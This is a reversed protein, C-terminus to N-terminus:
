RAAAALEPQVPAPVAAFELGLRYARELYEQRVQPGVAGPAFFYVHEVQQVGPYKLGWDDVIRGIAEQFGEQYDAERFFTTSIVLAKRLRLLPIRGKADGSWGGPTLAYAFGYSFVRDIWGKLIAPFGTWYIPAIIALGDARALKGQQALVDRPKFRAMLRVVDATRKGRLWRRAIFRGIPGPSLALLGERPHM